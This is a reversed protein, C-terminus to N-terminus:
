PYIVNKQTDTIVINDKNLGAFQSLTKTIVDNVESFDPNRNVEFVISAASQDPAVTIIATEVWDAKALLDSLEISKQWLSELAAADETGIPNPEILQVGTDTVMGMKAEASPMRTESVLAGSLLLVLFVASVLTIGALIKGMKSLPKQGSMHLTSLLMNLKDNVKKM